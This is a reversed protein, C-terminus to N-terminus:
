MAEISRKRKSGKFAQEMDIQVEPLIPYLPGTKEISVTAVTHGGPAVVVILLPSGNLGNEVVLAKRSEWLHRQFFGAVGM